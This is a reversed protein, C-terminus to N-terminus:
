AVGSSPSGAKLGLKSRTHREINAIVAHPLPRPLVAPAPAPGPEFLEPPDLPEEPELAELGFPAGPVPTTFSV